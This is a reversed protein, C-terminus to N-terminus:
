SKIKREKMGNVIDEGTDNLMKIIVEDTLESAFAENTAMISLGAQFIKLKMFLMRLEVESFIELESDKVMEKIVMQTMGDDYSVLHKDGNLLFDKFLISYDKAFKISAIGLDLFPDGSNQESILSNGIEHIKTVVANKLEDIEKFNVYIPAISCELKSAIKRITIGNMGEEKAIEFAADIIQEKTFKNKPPM